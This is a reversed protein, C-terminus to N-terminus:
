SSVLPPHSRVVAKVSVARHRYEKDEDTLEAANEPPDEWEEWSLDPHESRAVLTVRVQQLCGIESASPQSDGAANNFWEDDNAGDGNETVTGNGDLDCGLAVQLNAINAVLESVTDDSRTYLYLAPEDFDNKSIFLVVDDLFGATIVDETRFPLFSGNENLAILEQEAQNSGTSAVQLTMASDGSTASSVIGINYKAFYRTQGNSTTVPLEWVTTFLIPTGAEPSDIEQENGSFPSTSEINVTYNSGQQTIAAAGDVDYLSGKIVGRITLVDTNAMTAKPPSGFSKQGESVNDEMEVALVRLSGGSGPALLPLGGSGSMRLMRVIEGATYRLSENIDAFDNQAKAIKASGDLLSLFGILVFSFVILSVMLEVLSYGRQGRRFSKGVPGSPALGRSNNRFSHKATIM